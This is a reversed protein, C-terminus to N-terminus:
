KLLQIKVVATSLEIAKNDIPYGVFIVDYMGQEAYPSISFKVEYNGLMNKDYRINDILTEVVRGQLDYVKCTLDVAEDVNFYITTEKSFQSPTAWAHTIVASPIELAAYALTIISDQFNKYQLRYSYIEDRYPVTDYDFVYAFGKMHTIDSKLVEECTRGGEFTGTMAAFEGLTRDTEGFPVLERKIIFGKCNYESITAFRLEVKRTGAYHATFYKLIFKPMTDIVEYKVHSSLSDNMEINDNANYWKVNNILSDNLIKYACAQYYYYSQMFQYSLPVATGDKTKLSYTGIKVFSTDPVEKCNIYDRPGSMTISIRGDLVRPTNQYDLDPLAQGTRAVTPFYPIPDQILEITFNSPDLKIANDVNNLVFTGNVFKLWKNTSRKISIDFVLESISPQYFNHM